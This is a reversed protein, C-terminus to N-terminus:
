NLCFFCCLVLSCNDVHTIFQAHTENSWVPKCHSDGLLVYNRDIGNLTVLINLQDGPCTTTELRVALM